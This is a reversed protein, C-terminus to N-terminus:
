GRPQERPDFWGISVIEVDSIPVKWIKALARRIEEADMSLSVTAKTQGALRYTISYRYKM